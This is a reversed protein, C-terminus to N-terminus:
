EALFIEFSIHRYAELAVGVNATHHQVLKNAAIVKCRKGVRKSFTISYENDTRYKAACTRATKRNQKLVQAGIVRGVHWVGIKYGLSWDTGDAYQRVENKVINVGVAVVLYVAAGKYLLRTGRKFIVLAIQGFQIMHVVYAIICTGGVVVVVAARLLLVFGVKHFKNSRERYKIKGVLSTVAHCVIGIATRYIM